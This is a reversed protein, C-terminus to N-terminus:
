LARRIDTHAFDAGKFLLPADLSKALAYAFCDGFNLQAPHGMGKGYTRHAQRALRVQQEDVPATRINAAAVFADLWAEAEDDSVVKRARIVMSCELVNAVSMTPNDDAAIRAAMAALEPEGLYIAIVASSDIVIM